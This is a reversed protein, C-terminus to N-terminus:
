IGPLCSANLGFLCAFQSFLRWLSLCIALIFILHWWSRPARLVFHVAFPPLPPDSQPLFSFLRFYFYITNLADYLGYVARCHHLQAFIEKAPLASYRERMASVFYFRFANLRQTPPHCSPVLVNNHANSATLCAVIGAQMMHGREVGNNRWCEVCINAGTVRFACVFDLHFANVVIVHFLCFLSAFSSCSALGASMRSIFMQRKCANTRVEGSARHLFLFCEVAWSSCFLFPFQSSGMKIKGHMRALTGQAMDALNWNSAASSPAWCSKQSNAHHM